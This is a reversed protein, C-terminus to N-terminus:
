KKKLTLVFDEDKEEMTVEYGNNMAFRTVNEVACPNDVLVELLNPHEAKVAKQTMVVPLPCSLGRADIM